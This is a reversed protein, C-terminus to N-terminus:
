ARAGWDGRKRGESREPEPSSPEYPVVSIALRWERPLLDFRRCAALAWRGQELPGLDRADGAVERGRRIADGWDKAILGRMEGAILQTTEDKDLTRVAWLLTQLRSANRHEVTDLELVWALLERQHHGGGMLIAKAKEFGDGAQAGMAMADRIPSPPYPEREPAWGGGAKVDWPKTPERLSELLKLAEVQLSHGRTAEFAAAFNGIPEPM